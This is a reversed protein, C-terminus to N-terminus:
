QRAKGHESTQRTLRKILDAPGFDQRFTITIHDRQFGMQEVIPILLAAANARASEIIGMQPISSIISQRGRREIASLEADTYHSRLLPVREKANDHDIRTSTMVVQPDPLVIEIRDGSRTINSASFDAFDIYGKITAEIPIAVSRKGTPLTVSFPRGLLKGSVAQEDDQTIIKRVKYETTYLRSCQQIQMVMMPITDIVKAKEETKKQSCSSFTFVMASLIIFLVKKMRITENQSCLYMM